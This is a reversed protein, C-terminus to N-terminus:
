IICPSHFDCLGCTKTVMWYGATLNTLIVECDIGILIFTFYFGLM